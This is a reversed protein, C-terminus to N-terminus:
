HFLTAPEVTSGAAKAAHEVASQWQRLARLDSAQSELLRASEGDARMYIDLLVRFAETRDDETRRAPEPAVSSRPGTATKVADRLRAYDRSYADAVDRTRQMETERVVEIEDKANRLDQELKRYESTVRSSELAYIAVTTAHAAIEDRLDAKTGKLRYSQIGLTISVALIVVATVVLAYWTFGSLNVAVKASGGTASAAANGVAAVSAHSDAGAAFDKGDTELM